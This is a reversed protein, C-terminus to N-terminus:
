DNSKDYFSKATIVVVTVKQDPIQNFNDLNATQCKGWHVTM